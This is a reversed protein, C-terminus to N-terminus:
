KFGYEQQIHEFVLKGGSAETLAKQLNDEYKLPVKLKLSVETEFVSDLIKGGNEFILSSLKDYFGYGCRIKLISWPMMEGIGAKDLALKAAHSYARVLGGKGLLTGGFYRTVVVSCDSVGEKIIVNLVPVGATGQPEGDDSYRKLQGGRIFYAYVNHTADRHKRKIENIFEVAADDSDVPMAYGIFRSKKVIYEDFGFAKM